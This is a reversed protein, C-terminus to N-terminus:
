FGFWNKGAAKKQKAAAEEAAAEMVSDHEELLEVIEEQDMAEAIDLATRGQGDQKETDAKAKLLVKACELSDHLVAEILATRGDKNVAELNAKSEILLPVCRSGHDHSAAYHM